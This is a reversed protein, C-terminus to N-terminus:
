LIFRYLLKKVLRYINIHKKYLVLINSVKFVIYFFFYTLPVYQNKFLKKNKLKKDVEIFM